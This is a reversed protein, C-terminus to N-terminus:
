LGFKRIIGQAELDARLASLNVIIRLTTSKQGNADKAFARVTSEGLVFTQARGEDLLERFYAAHRRRLAVEDTGVLAMGLQNSAPFGRFLVAEFAATRAAAVAQKAKKGGATAELVLRGGTEEVLAVCPQATAALASLLCLLM